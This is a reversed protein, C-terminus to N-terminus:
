RCGTDDRSHSVPGRPNVVHVPYGRGHRMHLPQLPRLAVEYILHASLREHEKRVGCGSAMSGSVPSRRASTIMIQTSDSLSLSARIWSATEGNKVVLWKSPWGETSTRAPRSASIPSASNASSMWSAQNDLADFLRAAHSASCWQRRM